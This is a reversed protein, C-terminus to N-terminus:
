GSLAAVRTAPRRDWNWRPSAYGALREGFGDRVTPLRRSFDQRRAVSRRTVEPVRDIVTQQAAEPDDIRHLFNEWCRQRLEPDVGPWELSRLRRVLPDDDAYSHDFVKDDFRATM